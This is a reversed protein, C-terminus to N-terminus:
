AKQTTLAGHCHKYKKGSGCPCPSNRPTSAWSEEAQHLAPGPPPTDDSSMENHGTDPDLHTERMPPVPAPAQPVPRRQQAQQKEEPTQVRIHMLSRTVTARLENLLNYFLNFAEEKFENLPDRQGYSR